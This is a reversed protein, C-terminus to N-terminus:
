EMLDKVPVDLRPFLLIYNIRNTVFQKLKTQYEAVRSSELVSFNDNYVLSKAKNFARGVYGESEKKMGTLFELIM